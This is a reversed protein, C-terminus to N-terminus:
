NQLRIIAPPPSAFLTNSFKRSLSNRNNEQIMKTLYYTIEQTTKSLDDFGDIVNRRYSAYEEELDILANFYGISTGHM